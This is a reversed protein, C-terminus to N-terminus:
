LVGHSLSTDYSIAYVDYTEGAKRAAGESIDETKSIQISQSRKAKDKAPLQLTVVVAVASMKAPRPM